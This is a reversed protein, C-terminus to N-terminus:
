VVRPQLPQAARDTIRRCGVSRHLLDRRAEREARQAVAAAQRRWRDDTWSADIIVSEGLALCDGAQDLLRAYVAATTEPRYIGQRYGAGSAMGTGLQHRLEDSSLPVWGLRDALGGALTTKGTGPLGGVLVLRMSARRLHRHCIELLDAAQAAALPDGQSHRLCAVKARIQARYAIWHHQLSAPWTDGSFERYWNLFSEGLRCAGLRELDMALFAVDSLVDGHRLRADFELCDLVQVGDDVVFIDEALLDGHGDRIRGGEVRRDFLRRRGRIYSASMRAAAEKVQSDLLGAMVYPGMQRWNDRWNAAMAGISGAEAIERDSRCRSHFAALQQALARLPGAVDVGAQVLRALSASSDLRRMVVLSDCLTGHDDVVNAVGLYVDPAIRRNLAVELQCAEHRQAATTWDLFGTKVPKKVKYVRDGVFFLTSVHTEVVAPSLQDPM